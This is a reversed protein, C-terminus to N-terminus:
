VPHANLRYTKLHNQILATIKDPAEELLWHGCGDLVEFQYPANVHNATAMAATKGLSRDENGWIYLTPVRVKGVRM